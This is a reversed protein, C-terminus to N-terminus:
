LNSKMLPKLYLHFSENVPDKNLPSKQAEAFMREYVNGDYAGLTSKLVCDPIDFGDVIGVANVRIKSLLSELKKQLGDLDTHTLGSFQFYFISFLLSLPSLRSRCKLRLIASLRTNLHVNSLYKKLNLVYLSLVQRPRHRKRDTSINHKHILTFPAFFVQLQKWPM